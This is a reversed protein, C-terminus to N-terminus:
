LCCSEDLKVEWCVSGMKREDSVESSIELKWCIGEMLGRKVGEKLEGWVVLGEEVKPESWCLLKMAEGSEEGRMGLGLLDELIGIKGELYWSKIVLIGLMLGKVVGCSIEEGEEKDKLTWVSGERWCIDEASKSLREEM